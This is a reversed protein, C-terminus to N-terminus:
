RNYWWYGAVEKLNSDWDSLVRLQPLLLGVSFKKSAATFNCAFQDAQIGSRKFLLAARPMHMASTILLYPPGLKLSDLIKGSNIANDATNGSADEIIIASDPVGMTILERRVFSAEGFQKNEKKGNGGSVLINKVQGTKYLKLVQIFRDAAGNFYAYNDADVSAFGGLVIGCNYVKGAPINPRDAQWYGAFWNAILPSSFILFVALAALSCWKKIRKNKVFLGLAAFFLIWYVPSLIFSFIYSAIKHM